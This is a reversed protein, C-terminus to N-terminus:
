MVTIARPNGEDDAIIDFKRSECVTSIRFPFIGLQGTIKGSRKMTDIFANYVSQVVYIIPAEKTTGGEKTLRLNNRNLCLGAWLHGIKYEFKIEGGAAVTQTEYGSKAVYEM